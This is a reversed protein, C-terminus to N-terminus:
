ILRAAESVDRYNPGDEEITGFVEDQNNAAAVEFEDGVTHGLGEDSSTKSLKSRTFLKPAM